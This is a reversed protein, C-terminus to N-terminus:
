GKVRSMIAKAEADWQERVKEAGELRRNMRVYKQAVASYTIGGAKQGIEDNLAATERKALYVFMDRGRGGERGRVIEPIKYYVCVARYLADLEVKKRYFRKSTVDKLERGSKIAGLAKDV